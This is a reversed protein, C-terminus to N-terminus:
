VARTTAALWAWRAGRAVLSNRAQDEDLLRELRPDRVEGGMRLTIALSAAALQSLGRAAIALHLRFLPFSISIAAVTRALHDAVPVAICFLGPTYEENDVAYGCDRVRALEQLLEGMTAITNPTMRALDPGRFRSRVESDPLAALLAKGLGTAHASLRGGVDSQLRLPHTSDVKALYVNEAGDLSALQVTENLDAVIAHMADRSDAVIDRSQRYAQGNEWVKLGLSYTRTQSDFAFYGRSSLVALLAHLSSKPFGTLQGLTPFSLAGGHAAVLEILDLLREASKVRPGKEADDQM